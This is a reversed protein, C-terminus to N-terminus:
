KKEGSSSKSETEAAVPTEITVPLIPGVKVYVYEAKGFPVDDVIYERTERWAKRDMLFLKVPVSVSAGVLIGADGEIITKWSQPFSPLAFVNMAKGEYQSTNAPNISLPGYKEDNPKIFVGDDTMNGEDFGIPMKCIISRDKVEGYNGITLVPNTSPVQGM